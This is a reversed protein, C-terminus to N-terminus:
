AAVGMAMADVKSLWRGGTGCGTCFLEAIHPGRGPGVRYITSRCNPCPRHPVTNRPTAAPVGDRWETGDPLRYSVWDEGADVQEAAM